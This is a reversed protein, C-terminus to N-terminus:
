TSQALVTSPLSRDACTPLHLEGKKTHVELLQQQNTHDGQHPAAMGRGEVCHRCWSRPPDHTANHARREAPTPVYPQSPTRVIRGEAEPEVVGRGGRKAGGREEEAFAGLVGMEGVDDFVGSVDLDEEEIVPEEDEHDSM